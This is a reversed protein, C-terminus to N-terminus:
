GLNGTQKQVFFNFANGSHKASNWIESHVGNFKYISLRLACDKGKNCFFHFM